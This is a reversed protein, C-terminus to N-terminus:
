NLFTLPNYEQAKLLNEEMCERHSLFSYAVEGTTRNGRELHSHATSIMHHHIISVTLSHHGRSSDPPHESNAKKGERKGEEWGGQRRERQVVEKTGQLIKM